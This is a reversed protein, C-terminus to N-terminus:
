PAGLEYPHGSPLNAELGWKWALYGEIKQRTDLDVSSPVVIIEAIEGDMIQSSVTGSHHSQFRGVTYKTATTTIDGSTTSTAVSVGDLWLSRSGAAYLGAQIQWATSTNSFTTFSSRTGIRATSNFNDFRIGESSGFSIANGSDLFSNCYESTSGAPNNIKRVAFVSIATPNFVEGQMYETNFRLTNLGNLGASVVPPQDPATEQTAHRANGSKDDWQSVNGSNLTITDADAADLWLATTILVPTWLAM